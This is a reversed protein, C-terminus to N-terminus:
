TGEALFKGQLNYFTQRSVGFRQGVASIADRDVLHARLMEYRVQLHDEADFFEPAQEFLPDQVRQPQPHLLGAERLQRRKQAKHSPPDAM